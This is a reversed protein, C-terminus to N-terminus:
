THTSGRHEVVSGSVGIGSGCDDLCEAMHTLSKGATGYRWGAIGDVAGFIRRDVTPCVNRDALGQKRSEKQSRFEPNEARPQAAGFDNRSSM